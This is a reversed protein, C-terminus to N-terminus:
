QNWTSTQMTIPSLYDADNTFQPVTVGSPDFNLYQPNYTIDLQGTYTKEIGNQDILMAGNVVVKSTSSGTVLGKGLYVLGNVTLTSNAAITTTGMVVLAPFGAKAPTISVNGSITLNGTVYITGSIPTASSLTYPSTTVSLVNAPNSGGLLIGLLWEVLSWVSYTVGNYTYGSASGYDYISSSPPVPDISLPALTNGAYGSATVGGSVSLEGGPTLSSETVLAPGGPNSITTSAGTYSLYLASNSALAQRVVFGNTTTLTSTITKSLTTGNGYDYYGTSTITWNQGSTGSPSLSINASCNKLGSFTVGNAGSWYMPISGTQPTIVPANLPNNLYYAALEAGSEAAVGAEAAPVESSAIETQSISSSLLAYAMVAAMATFLLVMMM